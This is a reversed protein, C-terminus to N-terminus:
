LLKASATVPIGIEISTKEITSCIKEVVGADSCKVTCGDHLWCVIEFFRSKKALDVVSKMIKLEVSQAVQALISKADVEDTLLIFNGYIDRAGGEKEIKAIQIDRASIITAIVCHQLLKKGGNKIGYKELNETTAKKVASTSAGYFIAYVSKKLDAKVDDFNEASGGVFKVLDKWIDGLKLYDEVLTCGWLKSNISFHAHDIDVEYCDKFIKRRVSKSLQAISSCVPFIRVTHGLASPAYVTKSILNVIDNLLNINYNRKVEELSNATEIALDLNKNLLTTFCNQSISNMYEAVEVADACTSKSLKEQAETVVDKLVRARVAPSIIEGTSLLVCKQKKPTRLETVYADLLDKHLDFSKVTRCLSDTFIWKSYVVRMVDRSFSDLFHKAIYKKNYIKGDIKALLNASILPKKTKECLRTSFLIHGFLKAYASNKKLAPYISIALNYFEASVPKEM